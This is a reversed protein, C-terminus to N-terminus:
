NLEIQAFFRKNVNRETAFRTVILNGYNMYNNGKINAM